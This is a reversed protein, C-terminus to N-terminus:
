QGGGCHLTDCSELVQQGNVHRIVPVSLITQRRRTNEERTTDSPRYKIQAGIMMRHTPCGAVMLDLVHMKWVAGSQSFFM